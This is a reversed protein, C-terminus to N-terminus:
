VWVMMVWTVVLAPIIHLQYRNVPVDFAIILVVVIILSHALIPVNKYIVAYISVSFSMKQNRYFNSHAVFISTCDTLVQSLFTWMVLGTGFFPTLERAPQNWLLSWDGDVRRDHDGNVTDAM